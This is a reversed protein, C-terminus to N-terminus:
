RGPAIADSPLRSAAGAGDGPRGPGAGAPPTAADRLRGLDRVAGPSLRTYDTASASLTDKQLKALRDRSAQASKAQATIAAIDREYMAKQDAIATQAEQNIRTAQDLQQAQIANNATLLANESQLHRVYLFAGSISSVIALVALGILILKISSLGFM